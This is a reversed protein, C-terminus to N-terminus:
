LRTWFSEEQPDNTWCKVSEKKKREAQANLNAMGGNWTGMGQYPYMCKHSNEISKFM